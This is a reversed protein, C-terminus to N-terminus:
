IHTTWTQLSDLDDTSPLPEVVSTKRWPTRTIAPGKDCTVGGGKVETTPSDGVKNQGELLTPRFTLVKDGIYKQHM